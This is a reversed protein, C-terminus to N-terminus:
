HVLKLNRSLLNQLLYLVLLLMGVEQQFIKFQLCKRRKLREDKLHAHPNPM